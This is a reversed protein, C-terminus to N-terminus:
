AERHRGKLAASVKKDICGHRGARPYPGFDRKLGGFFEFSHARLPGVFFMPAKKNAQPNAKVLRKEGRRCSASTTWDCRTSSQRAMCRPIRSTRSSLRDVRDPQSCTPVDLRMGVSSILTGLWDRARDVATRRYWGPARRGIRDAPGRVPRRLLVGDGGVPAVLLRGRPGALSRQTAGCLGAMESAETGLIKNFEEAETNVLKAAANPPVKVSLAVVVLIAAAFRYPEASGM